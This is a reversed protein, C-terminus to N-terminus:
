QKAWKQSKIPIWLHNHEHFIFVFLSIEFSKKPSKIKTQMIVNILLFDKNLFFRKKNLLEKKFIKKTHGM